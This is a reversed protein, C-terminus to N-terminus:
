GSARVKEVEARYAEYLRLTVPGPSGGGITEDDVRVVGLVETTTGTLFVEDAERFRGVPLAGERTPVGLSKALELVLARTVGPLINRVPHTWVTGGLVAFASAHTGETVMGDRVFIAEYAGARHARENALVNPLLDTTKIECYAHRTEPVTICAVGAAREEESRGAFPRAWAIVTPRAGEPFPHKRTAVGRTVQLYVTGEAVGNRLATELMAEGLEEPPGAQIELEKLGRALRGLHDALRFGRGGVVRVVEYVGDGFNLGRDEVPLKAEGYPVFAGNLYVTEEPM